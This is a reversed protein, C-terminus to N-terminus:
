RPHALNRRTTIHAVDQAEFSSLSGGTKERPPSSLFHVSASRSWTSAIDWDRVQFLVHFQKRRSLWSVIVQIMRLFSETSCMEKQGEPIESCEDCSRLKAACLVVEM